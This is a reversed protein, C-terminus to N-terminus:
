GPALHDRRFAQEAAGALLEQMRQRAAGQDVDRPQYTALERRLSVVRAPDVVVRRPHRADRPGALAARRAGRAGAEGEMDGSEAHVPWRQRLREACQFVQTVGLEELPAELAVRGTAQGSADHALVPALPVDGVCAADLARHEGSPAEMGPRPLLLVLNLRRDAVPDAPLPGAFPLQGDDLVHEFPPREQS